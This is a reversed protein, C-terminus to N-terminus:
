IKEYNGETEILKLDDVNEIRNYKEAPIEFIGISSNNCIFYNLSPALYFNGNTQINNLLCWETCSAIESRNKFYFIGATALDGILEKERFEIVNNNKFRLYSYKNNISKFAVLGLIKNENNMQNMFDNTPFDVYSNNPIVIVPIDEPILDLAFSLSLLAGKTQNNIEAYKITKNSEVKRRPKKSIVINLFDSGHKKVNLEIPNLTLGNTLESANELHNTGLFVAVYKTNNNLSNM